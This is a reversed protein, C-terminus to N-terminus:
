GLCPPGRLSIYLLYTSQLKDPPQYWKKTTTNAEKVVINITNTSVTKVVAEKEVTIKKITTQKLVLVDTTASTHTHMELFWDLFGKKPTEKQPKEHHHHNHHHSHAVDHHHEEQHQNHWHPVIQHLLLMSFIGLFFFAKITKNKQM